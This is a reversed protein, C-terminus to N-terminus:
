VALSNQVRAKVDDNEWKCVVANAPHPSSENRKRRAQM